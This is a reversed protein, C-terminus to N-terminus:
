GTLAGYIGGIHRFIEFKLLGAKGVPVEVAKPRVAVDRHYLASRILGLQGLILSTFATYRLAEDGDLKLYFTLERWIQRLTLRGQCLNFFPRIFKLYSHHRIKHELRTQGSHYFEYNTGVMANLCIWYDLPRLRDINQVPVDDLLSNPVFNIKHHYYDSWDKALVIGLSPAEDYLRTGPHATCFQGVYVPFALPHFHEVWPLGELIEDIFQAQLYYGTITEGPNFAMYTFMPYMGVARQIKACNIIGELAEHKHIIDFTEPNASEIGVEMGICGSDKLLPMLDANRNLHSARSLGTWNIKVGRRIIEECLAKIYKRNLLLNDDWFHVQHIDLKRGIAEIEDVVRAPDRYRVTRKWLFPSVCYSCNYPCGRSGIVPVRQGGTIHMHTSYCEPKILDWAPFPIGDLDDIFGDPPWLKLEGTLNPRFGLGPIGEPSEGSAIRRLLETFPREGEHIIVYDAHRSAEEPFISTHVGGMVIKAQPCLKRIAPSLAYAFPAQATWFTIGVVDRKRKWIRNCTEDYGLGEAQADLLEINLNPLRQRAYSALYMLSLPMVRKHRENVPLPPQILLVELGQQAVSSM